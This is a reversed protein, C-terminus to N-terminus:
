DVDVTLLVDQSQHRKVYRGYGLGKEENVKDLPDDDSDDNRKIAHRLEEETVNSEITRKKKVGRNLTLSYSADDKQKRPYKCHLLWPMQKLKKSRPLNLHMHKQRTTKPAKQM